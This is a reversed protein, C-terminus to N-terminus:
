SLLLKFPCFHWDLNLISIYSELQSKEVKEPALLYKRGAGAAKDFAEARNRERIWEAKKKSPNLEQNGSHLKIKCSLCAPPFFFDSIGELSSTAAAPRRLNM